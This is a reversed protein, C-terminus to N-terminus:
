KRPKVPKAPKTKSRQATKKVPPTSGNNEEEEPRKM